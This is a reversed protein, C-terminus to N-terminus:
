HEDEHGVDMAIERLRAAVIDLGGLVMMAQDDVAMNRLFSFNMGGNPNVPGWGVMLMAEIRGTEVAERMVDLMELSQKKCEAQYEKIQEDTLTENLTAPLRVKEPDAKGDGDIVTFRDRSM